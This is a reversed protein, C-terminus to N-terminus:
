SGTNDDVGYSYSSMARRKGLASSERLLRKVLEAPSDCSAKRLVEHMEAQVEGVLLDLRTAAGEYSVGKMLASLVDRQRASLDWDAAYCAVVHQRPDSMAPARGSERPVERKMLSPASSRPAAARPASSRPLVARPAVARPAVARPAVARPAVARPAVARPAVSATRTPHVASIADGTAHPPPLLTPALGVNLQIHPLPPPRDSRKSPPVVDVQNDGLEVPPMASPRMSEPHSPARSALAGQVVKPQGDVRVLEVFRDLVSPQADRPVLLAGVSAADEAWHHLADREVTVVSRGTPSTRSFADLLEIASGGAAGAHVVLGVCDPERFLTVQAALISEVLIARVSRGLHGALRMGELPSSEVILIYPSSPQTM